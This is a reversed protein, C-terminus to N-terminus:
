LEDVSFGEDQLRLALQKRDMKLTNARVYVNPEKNLAASLSDWKEKGLDNECFADLDDPYSERLKRVQMQKRILAEIQKANFKSKELEAPVEQKKFHFYEQAM